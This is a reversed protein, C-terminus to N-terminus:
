DHNHTAKSDCECTRCEGTCESKKNKELPHLTKMIRGLAISVGLRKNFQDYERCRATEKLKEGSPTTVEVITSGGCPSIKAGLTQEITSVRNQKTVKEEIIKVIPAINKDVRPEHRIFRRIHQIRVTGGVQRIAEITKTNHNM